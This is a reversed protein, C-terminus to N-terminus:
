ACACRQLLVAGGCVCRRYSIAAVKYREVPRLNEVATRLAQWTGRVEEKQELSLRTAAFLDM